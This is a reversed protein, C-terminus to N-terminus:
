STTFPVFTDNIDHYVTLGNVIADAMRLICGLFLPMLRQNQGKILLKGNV